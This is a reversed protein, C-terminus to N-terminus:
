NRRNRFRRIVSTARSHNEGTHTRIHNNLTTAGAFSRGCFGCKFPKENIHIVVHERLEAPGPFSSPCHGCQYPRDPSEPCVHMQLLVRQSFTQTCQGCRWIHPEGHDKLGLGFPDLPQDPDDFDQDRSDEFLLEEDIGSPKWQVTHECWSNGAAPIHRFARYYINGCYQFVTMNQEERYRACQIFRMWSSM